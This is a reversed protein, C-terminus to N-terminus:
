PAPLRRGAGVLQTVWPSTDCGGSMVHCRRYSAAGVGPLGAAAKLLRPPRLAGGENGVGGVGAWGRQGRQGRRGGPRTSTAPLTGGAAAPPPCGWGGGERGGGGAAARRGPSRGRRRAVVPLLRRASARHVGPCAPSRSAASSRRGGWPGVPYPLVMGGAHGGRGKKRCRRKAANPSVQRRTAQPSLSRHRHAAAYPPGPGAPAIQRPLIFSVM